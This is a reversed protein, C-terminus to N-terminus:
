NARRAYFDAVAEDLAHLTHVDTIALGASEISWMGDVCVATWDGGPDSVHCVGANTSQNWSASIMM